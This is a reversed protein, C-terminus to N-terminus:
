TLLDDWFLNRMSFNRLLDVKPKEERLAYVASETPWTADFVGVNFLEGLKKKSSFIRPVAITEEAQQETTGEEHQKM